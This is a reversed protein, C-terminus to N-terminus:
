PLTRRPISLTFAGPATTTTFSSDGESSVGSITWTVRLTADQGGQTAGGWAHAEVEEGTEKSMALGWSDTPNLVRQMVGNADLYKVSDFTVFADHDITYAVSYTRISNPPEGCAPTLLLAVLLVAHRSSPM